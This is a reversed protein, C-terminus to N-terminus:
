ESGERPYEDLVEGSELTSPDYSKGEYASRVVKRPVKGTQTRPLAAVVHLEALRFPAGLQDAVIENVEEWLSEGADSALVFGVPVEGRAEDEVGVVVAEEVDPHDLLV